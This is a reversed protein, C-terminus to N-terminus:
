YTIVTARPTAKENSCRPIKALYNLYEPGANDASFIATNEYCRSLREMLTESRPLVFYLKPNQKSPNLRVLGVINPEEILGCAINFMRMYLTELIRRYEVRVEVIVEEYILSDILSHGWRSISSYTNDDTASLLEYVLQNAILTRIVKDEQFLKAVVPLNETLFELYYSLDKTNRILLNRFQVTTQNM